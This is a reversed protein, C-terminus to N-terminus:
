FDAGLTISKGQELEASMDALKKAARNYADNGLYLHLLPDPHEAM